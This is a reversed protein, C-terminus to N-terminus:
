RRRESSGWRTSGDGSGNEVWAKVEKVLPKGLEGNVRRILEPGLYRFQSAWAPSSTRVKLVGDKLSSPRCKSAIDPGVIKEWSNFLSAVEMPNEMGWKSAITALLSKIDVPEAM